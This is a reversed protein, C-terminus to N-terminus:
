RFTLGVGANYTNYKGINYDANISLLFLKLRFGVTTRFGNEGDVSIDVPVVTGDAATYDYSAKLKSSELGFGGYVTIFPISKGVEAHIINSKINVPGLKLDQYFAGATIDVPFFPVPIFQDLSIRAGIGLLGFDGLDKNIATSPVYRLQAETGFPLGVSAQLSTTPMAPINFGPPVPVSPIQDVKNNINSGMQARVQAETMGTQNAIQTVITNEAYSKNPDIAQTENPGFLTSAGELSPYVQSADLTVNVNSNDQPNTFTFTLNQLSSTDFTYTKGADPIATANVNLNVDFGLMKHVKATHYVGSNLGMGTSTILPQVYLKANQGLLQQLQSQFDGQAFVPQVLIIFFTLLSLGRTLRKM